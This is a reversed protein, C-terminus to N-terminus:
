PAVEMTSEDPLEIATRSLFPGSTVLEVIVDRVSVSGGLSQEAVRAVIADDVPQRQRGYLYELWHGTYCRHTASEAAIITALEVANAYGRFVGSEFEYRAAADVPLGNDTDQWRGLADYNEFAFGIPNILGGHCRAGCTGRGTHADVRQRLTQPITSSPGPLPAVEMPPAPLDACLVRRNLQVGRHIPDSTTSTSQAALFGIQTFLGARQPGLEVRQWDAPEAVGYVRAIRADAVTFSATLLEGLGGDDDFVVADVFRLAEQKMSEPLAPDYEPFLTTSRTIDAYKRADLWQFHFDGVMDHARPDELMREAQARVGATTRLSDAAAAALLADDPISNWLAFALRSAIEYSSLTVTGDAAPGMEPRYLFHPSQLTAEIVVRAGGTFPDLTPHFEAARAALAALRTQEAGTLPRRYARLGFDRIFTSLRAAPTAAAPALRDLAAADASIQDALQEAARQYGIWLNRDVSLSSGSNDFLGSTPDPIFSSSLGSRADLRLLDRTANEWQTHSLRPVRSAPSILEACGNSCRESGRPGAPGEDLQGRCGGAVVLLFGLAIGFTRTV